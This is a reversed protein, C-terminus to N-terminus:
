EDPFARALIEEARAGQRALHLATALCLGTNHGLGHGALHLFGRDDVTGTCADSPWATWGFRRGAELRLREVPYPGSPGLFLGRQGPALGPPVAGKLARVQAPTFTREWDAWRDGPV